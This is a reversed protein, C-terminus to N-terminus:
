AYTYNQNELDCIINALSILQNVLQEWSKMDDCPLAPGGGTMGRYRRREAEKKKVASSLDQWKKKVESVDRTFNTTNVANVRLSKIRLYSIIQRCSVHM